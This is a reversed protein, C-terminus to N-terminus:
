YSNESTFKLTIIIVTLNGHFVWNQQIAPKFNKVIMVFWFAVTARSVAAM